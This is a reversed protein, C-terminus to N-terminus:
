YEIFEVELPRYVAEGGGVMLLEFELDPVYFVGSAYGGRLPNWYEVEVRVRNGFIASLEKIDGETLFGTTVTIGSRTHGLVNRRLEGTGDIYSDKDTYRDPSVRYSQCYRLPLAAGQIKLLYGNIAM